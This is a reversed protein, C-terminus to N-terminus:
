RKNKNEDTVLFGLHDWLKMELKERHIEKETDMGPSDGVELFKRWHFQSDSILM